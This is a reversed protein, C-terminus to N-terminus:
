VPIDLERIFADFQDIMANRQEPTAYAVCSCRMRGRVRVLLELKLTATEVGHIIELALIHPGCDDTHDKQEDTLLEAPVPLFYIDDMPGKYGKADLAEALRRANDPLLDEIIYARM